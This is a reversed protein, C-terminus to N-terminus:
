LLCYASEVTRTTKAVLRSNDILIEFQRPKTMAETPGHYKRAM